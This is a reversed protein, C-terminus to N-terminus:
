CRRCTRSRCRFPPARMTRIKPAAVEVPPLWETAAPRGAPMGVGARWSGGAVMTGGVQLNSRGLAPKLYQRYMDARTGKEQMVQYTGFGAQPVPHATPPPTPHTYPTPHTPPHTPPLPPVTPRMRERVLCVLAARAALLSAPQPAGCSRWRASAGLWAAVLHARAAIAAQCPQGAPLVPRMYKARCCLVVSGGESDERCGAGPGDAQSPGGSPGGWVWGVGLGKEGGFCMLFVCIDPHWCPLMAARVQDADWNNFDPNQQLGMQQAAQFFAGHLQANTYRPNEVRMPGGAGHYKGAAAPPPAHGAWASAPACCQPCLMAHLSCSTWVFDM